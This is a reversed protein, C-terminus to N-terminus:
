YSSKPPLNQQSVAASSYRCVTGIAWSRKVCLDHQRSIAGGQYGIAMLKGVLLCIVDLELEAATHPDMMAAHYLHQKNETLLADVVSEQVNISSRM